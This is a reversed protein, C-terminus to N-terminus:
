KAGHEELLKVIDTFGKDKANSLATAGEQDKVNVDVEKKLLLEIVKKMGKESAYSLSTGKYSDKIHVDAGKEILL